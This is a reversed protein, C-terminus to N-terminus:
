ERVGGPQRRHIATSGSVRRIRSCTGSRTRGLWPHWDDEALFRDRPLTVIAALTDDPCDAAFTVSYFLVRVSKARGSGLVDLVFEAILGHPDATIAFASCDPTFVAWLTTGRRRDRALVRHLYDGAKM